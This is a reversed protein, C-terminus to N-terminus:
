IIKIEIVNDLYENPKYKRLLETLINYSEKNNKCFTKLKYDFYINKNIKNLEIKFPIPLYFNDIDEKLTNLIFCVNYVDQKYSILKGEELLKNNFFFQINKLLNEKFYIDLIDNYITDM